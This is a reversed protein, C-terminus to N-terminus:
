ESIQLEDLVRDIQRNLAPIDADNYIVTHGTPLNKEYDLQNQMREAIKEESVKDRAAAAELRKKRDRMVIIVHDFLNELGSEFLLPVEAFVTGGTASRMQSLLTSMIAPHTVSNLLRLKEPSCFVEDALRKRDLKGDFICSPFRAKVAALVEPIEYVTRGAEDASFVAFGRARLLGAVTSKGSGIGGTIAILRKKNQKM